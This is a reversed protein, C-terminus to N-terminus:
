RSEGVATGAPHTLGRFGVSTLLLEDYTGSAVIRGDEILVIRDCRRITALRHAVVVITKTGALSQIADTIHAETVNDIDSTAEDLVLVQPDHYLARAIGLRQRQGGSLRVGREGIVTEYAEPLESTIFEHIHAIRAATEVAARDIEADNIAYAINRAVTDDSLFVEQPVYGILKRWAIINEPKIQQDDVTITGDDPSLLGMIIDVLTTKGVGTMGVVAVSSNKPVELSVDKIVDKTTDPYRFRVGNLRLATNFSVNM